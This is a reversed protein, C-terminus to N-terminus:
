RATASTDLQAAFFSPSFVPTPPPRPLGFFLLATSFGRLSEHSCRVLGELVLLLGVVGLVNGVGGAESTSLWQGELLSIPGQSVVTLAPFVEGFGFSPPSCVSTLLPDITACRHLALVVPTVVPLLLLLPLSRRPLKFIDVHSSAM